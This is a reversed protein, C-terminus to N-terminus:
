CFYFYIELSDKKLKGSWIRLIELLFYDRVHPHNFLFSKFKFFTEYNYEMLKFRFSLTKVWTHIFCNCDQWHLSFANFFYFAPASNRLQILPVTAVYSYFFKTSRCGISVLKLTILKWRQFAQFKKIGSSSGSKLQQVKPQAAAGRALWEAVWLKGSSKYHQLKHYKSNFLKCTSQMSKAEFQKRYTESWETGAQRGEM